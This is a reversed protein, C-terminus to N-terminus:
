RSGPNDLQRALLALLEQAGNKSMWLVLQDTETLATVRYRIVPKASLDIKEELLSASVILSTENM